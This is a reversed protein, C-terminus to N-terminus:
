NFGSINTDKLNFELSYRQNEFDTIYVIRVPWLLAKDIYYTVNIGENTYDYVICDRKENGKVAIQTSYSRALTEGEPQFTINSKNIWLITQDSLAPTFSTAITSNTRIQIHTANLETVQIEATLSYPTSLSNLQGDYTAYAGKFMWPQAINKETNQLLQYEILTTVASVTLVIAFGILLWSKRM